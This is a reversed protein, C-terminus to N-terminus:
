KAPSYPPFNGCRTSFGRFPRKSSAKGPNKSAPRSSDFRWPRATVLVQIGLAFDALEAVGAFRHAVIAFGLIRHLNPRNRGLFQRASRKREHRSDKRGAASLSCALRAILIAVYFTGTLMEACIARAAAIFRRSIAMGVTSLTTISFYLMDEWPLDTPGGTHVGSFAGPIALDQITYITAFSMAILVYTCIAVSIHDPGVRGTTLVFSLTTILNFLSCVLLIVLFGYQAARNVYVM